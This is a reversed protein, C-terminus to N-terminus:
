SCDLLSKVVDDGVPQLFTPGSQTESCRLEIGNVPVGISYESNLLKLFVALSASTVDGENPQKIRANSIVVRLQTYNNPLYQRTTATNWKFIDVNIEIISINLFGKHPYINTQQIKSGVHHKIRV